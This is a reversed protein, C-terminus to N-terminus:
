WMQDRILVYLLTLSEHTKAGFVYVIHECSELAARAFPSRRAEGWYCVLTSVIRLIGHM